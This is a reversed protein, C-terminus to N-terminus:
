MRANRIFVDRVQRPDNIIRYFERIYDWAEKRTRSDLEKMDKIMSRISQEHLNFLGIVADLETQSRPYGRYVRVTVSPIGLSEEPVAYSANVFGCYDFDYPVAIPYSMSDKKPTILKINHKVSVSWDTNGIMYQFLAILTMQYRNTMEAHSVKIDTERCNNRKAMDDVDEIIFGPQVLPRRNGESDTFRITLLRVKFSKESLLSFMRYALYEKLVLMDYAHGERCSTVIKLKGKFASSSDYHTQFDLMVSPMQCNERRYEGRARLEIDESIVSSDPLVLRITAAQLEGKDAKRVLRRMDTEVFLQLPEDSSFLWKDKELTVQRKEGHNNKKKKGTQSLVTDAKLDQACPADTNILLMTVGLACRLLYKHAAKPMMIRFQRNHRKRGIIQWM